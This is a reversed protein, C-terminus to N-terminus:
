CLRQCGKVICLLGTLTRSADPKQAGDNQVFQVLKLRRLFGVLAEQRLAHALIRVLFKLRPLSDANQVPLDVLPSYSDFGAPPTTGSIRAPEPLAPRDLLRGPRAHNPFAFCAQM